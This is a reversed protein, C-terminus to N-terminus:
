HSSLSDFSDCLTHLVTLCVMTITTTWYLSLIFLLVIAGPPDCVDSYNDSAIDFTEDPHQARCQASKYAFTGVVVYLWYLVWLVGLKAFIFAVVYVGFNRGVGELAVKLNVAAFPVMRWAIKIYYLIAAMSIGTTLLMFFSGSAITSMTMLIFVFAFSEILCGYVWTKPCPKIMFLMVLSAFFFALLACPLVFAFLIRVPYVQIFKAAEKAFEEMQAIDEDTFDDGKRMEDEIATYNIDIKDYGKPAIDIGLWLMIALHIYFLIAFPVDRYIPASDMPGVEVSAMLPTMEDPDGGDFVVTEPAPQASVIPIDYPADRSPSKM